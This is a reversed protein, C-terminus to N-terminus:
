DNGWFNQNLIDLEEKRYKHLQMFIAISHTDCM